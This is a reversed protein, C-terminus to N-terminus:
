MRRFQITKALEEQGYSGIVLADLECNRNYAADLCVTKIGDSSLERIILPKDDFMLIPNVKKIYEVKEDDNEFFHVESYPIRNFRLQAMITKRVFLGILSESTSEKRSTTIYLKDDEERILERFFHSVGPKLKQCAYLTYFINWFKKLVDDVSLGYKKEFYEALKQNLFVEDLDYGEYNIDIDTISYFRRLFIEGYKLVFKEFETLTGDVDCCIVGM